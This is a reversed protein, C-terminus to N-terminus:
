IACSNIYDVQLYPEVSTVDLTTVFRTTHSPPSCHMSRLDDTWVDCEQLLTHVNKLCFVLKWKFCRYKAQM